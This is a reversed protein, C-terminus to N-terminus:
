ASSPMRSLTADRPSPSTYLLCCIIADFHNGISGAPTHHFEHQPFCRRAEAVAREAFDMGLVRCRPFAEALVEVGEGFACGWDLISAERSVLYEREAPPLNEVLRQMFYKTQGRGNNADWQAAFYDEWWPRSNVPANDTTEM